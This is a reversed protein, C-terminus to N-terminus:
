DTIIQGIKYGKNPKSYWKNDKLSKTMVANENVIAYVKFQEKAGNVVKVEKEKEINKEEKESNIYKANKEM